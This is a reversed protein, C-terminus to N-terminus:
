FSWKCYSLRLASPSCAGFYKCSAVTEMVAVKFLDDCMLDHVCLVLSSVVPGDSSKLTFSVVVTDDVFKTGYLVFQLPKLVCGQPSSYFDQMLKTARLTSISVASCLPPQMMWSVRLGASCSLGLDM